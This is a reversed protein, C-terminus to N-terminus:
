PQVAGPIDCPIETLSTVDQFQYFSRDSSFYRKEPLLSYDLGLYNKLVLRFTNVPSIDSPITEPRPDPLYYANLISYREYLCTNEPDNFDSFIGPGHDGQLIIIPPTPSNSLIGDIMELILLNDYTLQALYSARYEPVDGFLGQAYILSYPYNPNIPAGNQDFVFPPHPNVIHSFV